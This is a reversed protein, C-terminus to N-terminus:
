DKFLPDNDLTQIALGAAMALSKGIFNGGSLSARISSFLGNDRVHQLAGVPLGGSDSEWVFSILM